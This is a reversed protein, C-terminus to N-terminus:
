DAGPEAPTAGDMHAFVLARTQHVMQDLEAIAQRVIVQVEERDPHLRVSSRGTRGTRGTPHAAPASIRALVRHLDMSLAFMLRVLADALTNAAVQPGLDRDATSGDDPAISHSSNPPSNPMASLARMQRLLSLQGLRLASRHRGDALASTECAPSSLLVAAELVGALNLLDAQTAASDPVPRAPQDM